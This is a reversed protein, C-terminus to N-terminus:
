DSELSSLSALCGSTSPHGDHPVWWNTGSQHWESAQPGSSVRRSELLLGDPHAPQSARAVLATVTDPDVASYDCDDLGSHDNDCPILLAFTVLIWTTMQRLASPRLKPSSREVIM